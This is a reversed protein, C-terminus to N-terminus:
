PRVVPAREGTGDVRVDARAETRERELHQREDRMWRLWHDRVAEGDRALGRALRVPAPADVHVLVTCRASHRRSGSGVGELVLLPVPEVRVTGAWGATHWDYRRYSGPEGVALPGLLTDLQGDVTDLGTWGAYLDDMHVVRVPRLADPAAAALEAALSTKGSGAPGDVCVLRGDGLTAPRSVTLDLM